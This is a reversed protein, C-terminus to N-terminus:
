GHTRVVTVASIHAISNVAYIIEQLTKEAEHIHNPSVYEIEVQLTVTSKM